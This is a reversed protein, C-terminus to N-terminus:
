QHGNEALGKLSSTKILRRRGLRITEITGDNILRYIYTRGVGLARAADNVSMTFIDM